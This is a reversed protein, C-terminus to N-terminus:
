DISRPRNRAHRELAGFYSSVMRALTRSQNRRADAIRANIEDISPAGIEIGGIIMENRVQM